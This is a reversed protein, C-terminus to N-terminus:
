VLPGPYDKGLLETDDNALTHLLELHLYDVMSPCAEFFNKHFSERAHDIRERLQGYLDRRARGSAVADTEYLRIEAAEVRAVRQARLHVRQEEPALAEWASRAGGTSIQALATPEPLSSWVASALQTLLEAAATQAAGWVYLIARAHGRVVVPYIVVRGSSEGALAALQPSVQAAECVATVPDQGKVAEGLAPATDLPIRVERFTESREPGLGRVREGVAHSDSIRLLAVGSAFAGAGDVLAGGLQVPDPALRIRRVAENLRDAQSGIQRTLQEDFLQELEQSLVSLRGKLIERVPSVPASPFM